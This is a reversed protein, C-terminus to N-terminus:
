LNKEYLFSECIEPSIVLINNETLTSRPADLFM